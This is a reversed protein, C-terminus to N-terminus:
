KNGRWLLYCYKKYKNRGGSCIVINKNIVGGSCIVINKRKIVGGYCIVINKRNIVGGSCIVINKSKNGM